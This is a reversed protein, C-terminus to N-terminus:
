ERERPPLDFLIKSHNIDYLTRGINEKLLKLTDPRVNLNIIWKSNIKTYSTLYHELKIRKCTTTWNRLM